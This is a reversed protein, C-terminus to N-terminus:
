RAKPRPPRNGGGRTALPRLRLRNRSGARSTGSATNGPAGATQGVAGQSVQDRPRRFCGPLGFEPDDLTGRLYAQLVADVEGCVQGVVRVGEHRLLRELTQSIAGCILVAIGLEALSRAIAEPRAELLVIERRDRESRREVRVVTLRSAVDFVPSVRGQFNPIAVLM